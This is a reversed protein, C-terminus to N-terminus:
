RAQAFQHDLEHWKAGQGCNTACTEGMGLARSAGETLHRNCKMCHNLKDAFLKGAAAPDKEIEKLAAFAQSGKIRTDPRGGIVRKIFTMGRWQGSTPKTVYWFNIEQTGARPTAYYGEAVNPYTVRRTGSKATVREQKGTLILHDIEASADKKSPRLDWPIEALGREVRLSNLFKMQPQTALEDMQAAAKTPRSAPKPTFGYCAKVDQVTEHNQHCSGCKVSM